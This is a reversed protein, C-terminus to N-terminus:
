VCLAKSETRRSVDKRRAKRLVHLLRPGARRVQVPVADDALGGEGLHTLTFVVDGLHCVSQLYPGARGHQDAHGDEQDGDCETKREDYPGPSM